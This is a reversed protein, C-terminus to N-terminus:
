LGKLQEEFKAEDAVAPSRFTILGVAEASKLFRSVGHSSARDLIERMETQSPVEITEHKKRARTYIAGDRLGELGQRKCIVPIEEFPRVQIIV